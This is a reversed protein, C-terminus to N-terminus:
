LLRPIVPCGENLQDDSQEGGSRQGPSSGYGGVGHVVGCIPLAVLVLECVKLRTEM